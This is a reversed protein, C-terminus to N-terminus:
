WIVASIPAQPHAFDIFRATGLSDVRSRRESAFPGLVVAVVRAVLGIVRTPVRFGPPIATLVKLM